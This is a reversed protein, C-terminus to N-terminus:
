TRTLLKQQWFSITNDQVDDWNFIGFVRKALRRAIAEGDTQLEAMTLDLGLVIVPERSTYGGWLEVTPDMSVLTRDRVDTLKIAVHVGSTDPVRSYYRKFFQFFETLQFIASIFSLVKQDPVLTNERYASKWRFLGSFYARYGEVYREWVTYSQRGRAFNSATERDTHPFSWGRLAVTSARILEALTGYDSIREQAYTVPYASLEWHGQNNFDPSLSATFFVILM